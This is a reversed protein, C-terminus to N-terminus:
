SSAAHAAPSKPLPPSPLPLLTLGTGNAASMDPAVQANRKEGSLPAAAHALAGVAALAAAALPESGTRRHRSLGFASPFRRRHVPVPAGGCGRRAMCAALARRREPGTALGSGAPRSRPAPSPHPAARLGPGRRALGRQGPTGGSSTRRHGPLPSQHVSVGGVSVESPPGSPHAGNHPQPQFHPQQLQSIALPSLERSERLTALGGERPAAGAGAGSAAHVQVEGDLDVGQIQRM